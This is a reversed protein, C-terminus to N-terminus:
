RLRRLRAANIGGATPAAMACIEPARCAWGDQSVDPIVGIGIHRSKQRLFVRRQLDGRFLQARNKAIDTHQRARVRRHASPPIRPLPCGPAAPCRGREGRLGDQRCRGILCGDRDLHSVAFAAAADEERLRLEVGRQEFAVPEDQKGSVAVDIALLRDSRFHIPEKQPAVDVAVVVAREFLDVGGRDLPKGGGPRKDHRRRRVELHGRRDDVPHHVDRAPVLPM